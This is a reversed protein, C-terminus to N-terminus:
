CRNLCNFSRVLCDLNRQGCSTLLITNRTRSFPFEEALSSIFSHLLHLLNRKISKDKTKENLIERSSFSKMILSNNALPFSLVNIKVWERSVYTRIAMRTLWNIIIIIIVIRFLTTWESVACITETDCVTHVSSHECGDCLMLLYRVTNTRFKAGNTFSWFCVFSLLLYNMFFKIGGPHLFCEDKETSAKTQGKRISQLVLLFM